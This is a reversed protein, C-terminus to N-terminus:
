EKNDIDSETENDSDSESKSKELQEVIYNETKM